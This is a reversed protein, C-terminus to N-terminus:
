PAELREDDDELVDEDEVEDDADAEDQVDQADPDVAPFLMAEPLWARAKEQAASPEAASKADAFFKVLGSVLEAKKYSGLSSRGEAFGCEKSLDILQDRTRKEFFSRDPQWHNRMSVTLDQAIANFLSDKTDLTDCNEQGFSLATLLAQFAELEHDSCGKVSRYIAVDDVDRSPFVSWIPEDAEPTFGLKAAFHKAQTELVRYAGQPDDERSLTRIGIHMDLGVFSRVAALEKAVRPASLLVEQVAMSKHCSLMRRLPTAYSAKAKPAIPNNRLRQVTQRSAKRVLNERVEVV